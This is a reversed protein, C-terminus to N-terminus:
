FQTANKTYTAIFWFESGQGPTSHAGIQGGLLDANKKCIALGLGTGGYRRNTGAEGQTFPQFLKSLIEPKIGIGTDSVGIRITACTDNQKVLKAEIGIKGSDTFKIANHTFNTLIQRTKEEDGYLQEPIEPDINTQMQLGKSTASREMLDVVNGVLNRLSFAVSDPEMKGAELKSFDLLANLVTLLTQSSDYLKKSMEPLDAPDPDLTLMEALGVVGSLPTRIEHSITAVFESKLQNAKIAADRAVEAEARAERTENVQQELKDNAEQLDRPSRLQLAKPILPYLLAATALSVGATWLDLGAELWYDAHYLTWIKTLHTIGCSLIFAAFLKFMFPYPLDKRKGIFRQLAVPILFYALAIGLNGAIFVFLLPANWQLCFGHPMFSGSLSSLLDPM